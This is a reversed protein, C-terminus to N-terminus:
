VDNLRRLGEHGYLEYLLTKKFKNATAHKDRVFYVANEFSVCYLINEAKDRVAADIVAPPLQYFGDVISFRVGALRNTVGATVRGLVQNVVSQSIAAGENDAGAQVKGNASSFQRSFYRRSPSLNRSISFDVPPSACPVRNSMPASDIVVTTSM